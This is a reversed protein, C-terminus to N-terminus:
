TGSRVESDKRAVTVHITKGDDTKPELLTKVSLPGTLLVCMGATDGEVVGWRVGSCRAEHLCADWCYQRNPLGLKKLVTASFDKSVVVTMRLAEREDAPAVHCWAFLVAGLVLPHMKKM